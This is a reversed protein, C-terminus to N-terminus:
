PREFALRAGFGVMATGTAADLAWLYGDWGTVYMVGDVM